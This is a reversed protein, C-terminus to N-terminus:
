EREYMDEKLLNLLKKKVRFLRVKVNEETLNLAEAIDKISLDENYRLFVLNKEVESLSEIAKFLAIKDETSLKEDYFVVNEAFSEEVEVQREKKKKFFARLVNEEIAYLWSFFKRKEDFRKLYLFVRYFVEQVFDEADARNKLHYYGFSFCHGSYLSVLEKFAGFDGRKARSILDKEDM